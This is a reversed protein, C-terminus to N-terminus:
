RRAQGRVITDSISTGILRTRAAYPYALSLTDVDSGAERTVGTGYSVILGHRIALPVTLSATIRWNGQQTQRPM